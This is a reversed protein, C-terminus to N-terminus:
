GVFAMYIFMVLTATADATQHTISRCADGKAGRKSASKLLADAITIPLLWQRTEVV